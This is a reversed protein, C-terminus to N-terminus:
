ISNQLHVECFMIIVGVYTLKNLVNPAQMFNNHKVWILPNTLHFIDKEITPQMPIEFDRSPHRPDNKFSSRFKDGDQNEPGKM